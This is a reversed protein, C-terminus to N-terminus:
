AASSIRGGMTRELMRQYVPQYREVNRAWNREEGVFRRATARREDWGERGAILGALADAMAQPDDPAFLTGTVGNFQELFVGQSAAVDNVSRQVTSNRNNPDALRHLPFDALTFQYNLGGLQFSTDPNPSTLSAMRNLGPSLQNRSRSDAGAQFHCSACATKGDSGVRMDWFLAKGLAIAATKNQVFEGLNPPEPRAVSKLSTPANVPEATQAFATSGGGGLALASLTLLTCTAMRPPSPLAAHRPAHM